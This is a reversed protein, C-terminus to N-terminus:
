IVFSGNEFVSVWDGNQTEGMVKMDASGFMFDVHILSINFGLAKLEEESKM